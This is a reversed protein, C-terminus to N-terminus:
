AKVELLGVLGAQLEAEARSHGAQYERIGAREERLYAAEEQDSDACLGELTPDELLSVLEAKLARAQAMQESALPSPAYWCLRGDRVFFFVGHGRMVDLFANGTM